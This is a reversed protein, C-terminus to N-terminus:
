LLSIIIAGFFKLVFGITLIILMLVISIFVSSKTSKYITLFTLYVMLLGQWFMLILGVVLFLIGLIQNQMLADWANNIVDSQQINGANWEKIISVIQPNLILFVVSLIIFILSVLQVLSYASVVGEFLKKDKNGLEKGILFILFAIIFFVIIEVLMSQPSFDLKGVLFFAAIFSVIWPLLVLIVAIIISPHDLANQVTQKPHLFVELPHFGNVDKLAM